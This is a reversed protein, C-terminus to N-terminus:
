EDEFSDPDPETDIVDGVPSRYYGGRRAGANDVEPMDPTPMGDRAVPRSFDAILRPVYSDMGVIELSGADDTPDNITWANTVMCVAIAKAAIGTKQRYDRLAQVPHIAGAWTQMDSYIVFTDVPVKNEAAWTFPISADTGGFSHDYCHKIATELSDNAGLNVPRFERAFAMTHVNPETRVTVMAMVAEAVQPSFGRIGMLDPRHMSSSVDLGILTRAGSPTLMGFSAYFAAELAASIAPVPTWTNSGRVSQGSKYTLMATALNMPHVRGKRLREADCLSGIVQRTADSLPALLGVRTMTPLNRILATIPMDVLLAEWVAKDTLFQSPVVERPLKFDAILQAASKADEATRIATVGAMYHATDSGNETFPYTGKTAWQYLAAHTESAPKVHALRLADRMSWKDRSQYKTLQYALALPEKGNFWHRAARRMGRGWGRFQEVYALFHLFMTGTRAVSPLAAFANARTVGDGISAAMALAFLAPENKAARGAHSIEYIRNVARVGDAAICREVAEASERALKPESTYYTGGEVGMIIFRDLRVWDDVAFVYGGAENQQQNSGPISESQPTVAGRPGLNRLSRM